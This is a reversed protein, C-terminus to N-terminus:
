ANHFHSPRPTVHFQKQTRASEQYMCRIRYFQEPYAQTRQIIVVDQQNTHSDSHKTASDDDIDNNVKMGCPGKSDFPLFCNDRDDHPHTKIRDPWNLIRVKHRHACRQGNTRLNKNANHCSRRCRLKLVVVHHHPCIHLIIQSMLHCKLHPDDTNM